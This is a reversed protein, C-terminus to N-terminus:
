ATRRRRVGWARAQSRNYWWWEFCLVVLAVVLLAWWRERGGSAAPTSAAAGETRVLADNRATIQSENQSGANVAFRSVVGDAGRLEYVGPLSTTTYAGGTAGGDVRAHKGDPATVTVAGLSAPLQVPEGPSLAGQAVAGPQPRLYRMLNDILVPFAVQLPLDSDEPEFALAAVRRGENEGAVLVPLPRGAGASPDGASALTEMWDPPALRVMKGINTTALNVFRLLLNDDKQSSVTVGEARGTVPLLSSNSPGLLLLNGSPLKEPLDGSLIYVDYGPEVVAGAASKFVEVGDLLSLARELFPSATGHLLVRVPPGGTDVFWAANDAELADKANLRAEVVTGQPLENFEVGQVGDQSLAVDRADVLKGDVSLSLRATRAQGYNGISAWLQRGAVGSRASLALIGANAGSGRVPEFRVPYPVGPPAASVQGGDGVLIITPDALRGAVARALITADRLNSEGYPAGLQSLAGLVANRDTTPGALLRPSPGATILAVRRGQALEGALSRIRERAAEFRSGGGADTAAMSTSTDLVLVLEGGPVNDSRLLPRALAVVLLALVLLQLLLLLNRRLKQWPANAQVEELAQRWLFTSPVRLEERKPKLLYLLVLPISLLGLALALPAAFSM